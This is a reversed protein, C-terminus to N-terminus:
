QPSKRDRAREPLLTLVIIVSFVPMRRALYAFSRSSSWVRVSEPWLLLVARGDGAVGPWGKAQGGGADAVEPLAWLRPIRHGAFPAAAARGVSAGQLQPSTLRGEPRLSSPSRKARPSASASEARKHHTNVM